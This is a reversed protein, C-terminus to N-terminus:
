WESSMRWTKRTAAEAKAEHRPARPCRPILEWAAINTWLNEAASILEQVLYFSGPPQQSWRLRRQVRNPNRWVIALTAM